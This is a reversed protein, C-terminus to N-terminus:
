GLGRCAITLESCDEIVLLRAIKGDVMDFVAAWDSAFMKGNATIRAKEYGLLIVKDGHAIIDRIELAQIEALESSLALYRAVGEKGRFEGGMPTDEPATTQMVGDEAFADLFAQTSGKTLLEEYIHKVIAVNDVIKGIM